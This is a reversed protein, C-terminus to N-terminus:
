IHLLVKQFDHLRIWLAELCHIQYCLMAQSRQVLALSPLAPLLRAILCMQPGDYLLNQM